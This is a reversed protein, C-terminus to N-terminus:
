RVVKLEEDVEAVYIDLVATQRVEGAVFFEESSDARYLEWVRGGAWRRM